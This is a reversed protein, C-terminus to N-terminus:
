LLRLAQRANAFAQTLMASSAESLIQARSLESSAVAVDADRITSESSTMNEIENSSFSINHDLRNMLAGVGGRELAVRSIAAALRPLANRASGQSALSIKDLDLADGSARLDPLSFQLQDDDSASPGIQFLGASAEEVSLTKGDLDGDTYSGVTPPKIAGEGALTVQVGLRDFNAVAKTGDAVKGSDLIVGMDLTQTALGNGLTITGDGAADQFTYTGKEAGSLAVSVAGTDAQDAMVTSTAGNVETFGALLIRSNYVTAQAIRDIAARSQNYETQLIERQPDTLHGDAAQTALSRMRQLIQGAEQLSGEAVRLLDNAQEANKVNQGLRTLQSRMGESVALGSADNEARKIRLGSGMTEMKRESVARNKTITRRVNIALINSNTSLM